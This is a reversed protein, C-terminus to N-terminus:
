KGLATAVAKELEEGRLDRGIITGERDVLWTAPISMVDYNQALKNQWAQGDFFQQWPMNNEKIFSRLKQEDRDLSIGVIEFGKAHHKQYTALVNPLEAICPGCWTAWFDLLAVKGKYSSVSIPKGNIDMEKFDPFKAGVVLASQIKKAAESKEINALIQDAQQGQKTKPFDAQLKKVLERGKENDGFVQLYLVAKMLLIQAVDDTKEKQHETLLVDFQKMEDALAEPTKQGAQIKTNIKAILEQLQKQPNGPEASFAPTTLALLAAAVITRLLYLKM